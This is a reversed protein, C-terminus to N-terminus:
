GVNLYDLGKIYELRHLETEICERAGHVAVYSLVFPRHPKRLWDPEVVPVGEIRNGIKRPDIDIWAVPSYGQDLFHRARKRTNRGAGWIALNHRNRIVRPDQALYHARLRDFALRSCRPDRRSTRSDSDRWHLLTQPLKAMAVGQQHLRLWLDYDEPFPGNRYGGIRALLHRRFMVSPHALPSEFYIDRAIASTAVCGNQWRIYERFGTSLTQEPFARVRSGLVGIERNRRLYEQQLELRKPHMLDDADMRAVLDGSAQALGLNLAPVLGQQSTRFLRYREDRRATEALRGDTGDSSQDDVAIVEFATLSQASISELCADLTEVANRCPLLVSVTPRSM